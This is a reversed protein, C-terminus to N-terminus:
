LYSAESSTSILFSSLQLTADLFSKVATSSLYMYAYLRHLTEDVLLSLYTFVAFM